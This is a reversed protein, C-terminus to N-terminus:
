FGRHLGIKGAYDIVELYEDATPPRSLEPFEVAKYHPRYQNMINVYTDVSVEEKIFDLIKFAGAIRNPLVLHRVLLGRTALENEIVLDGVQRHMELVAIKVVQWYDPARSYKQAAGNDSYKIDPMYIDFVSDVIKLTNISEYGGCNYVLPLKLGRQAAIVLGELIQAIVHTPTVFNINEAGQSELNLMMEALEQPNVQEGVGLHSLEYNQCYACGLNCNSFFITGSGRRGVLEPEEGFHLFFSNVKACRGTGCFGSEGKLRNVRCNRPCLLCSALSGVLTDRIEELKGQNYLEPYKSM